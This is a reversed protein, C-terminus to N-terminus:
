PTKPEISKDKLSARLREIFSEINARVSAENALRLREVGILADGMTATGTAAVTDDFVVGGSKLDTASYRVRTTVSMDLGALPRKLDIMSATIESTAAQAEDALYNAARLSAELAAKFDVNSINSMWLPNTESGGQTAAVRFQRYGLEGASAPAITPAAIMQTSRAGSACGTVGLSAAALMLAMGAQLMFRTM